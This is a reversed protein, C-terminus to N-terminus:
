KSAFAKVKQDFRLHRPFCVVDCLGVGAAKVGVPGTKRPKPSCSLASDETRKLLSITTFTFKFVHTKLCSIRVPLRFVLAWM